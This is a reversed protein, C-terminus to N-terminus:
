WHFGPGSNLRLALLHPRWSAGDAPAASGGPSRSERGASLGGCHFWRVSGSPSRWKMLSSGRFHNTGGRTQNSPTVGFLFLGLATRFAFDEPPTTLPVAVMDQGAVRRPTADDPRSPRITSRSRHGAHYGRARGRRLPMSEATAKIPPPDDRGSTPTRITLRHQDPIINSRVGGHISRTIISPALTVDLQRSAITQLGLVIQSAVVISDVGRWPM